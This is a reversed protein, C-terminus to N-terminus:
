LKDLENLHDELVQGVATWNEARVVCHSNILTTLSQDKIQPVHEGNNWGYKGFLIMLFPSSSTATTACQVAYRFDCLCSVSFSFSSLDINFSNADIYKM